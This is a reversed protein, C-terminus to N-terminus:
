SEIVHPAVIQAIREAAVRGFRLRHNRRDRNITGKIQYRRKIEELLFEQEERTFSQTNLILEDRTRCGDDMIWVAFALPTLFTGIDDPVIKVGEQYFKEYLPRFAQSTQTHFFWSGYIQGNRKDLWKTRWPVGRVLNQFHYFKWFVYERQSEAHHVRFRATGNKSRCELRGDGLLSGVLIEKQLDSLVHNDEWPIVKM